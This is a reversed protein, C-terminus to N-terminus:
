RVQLLGRELIKQTFTKTDVAAVAADVKFESCVAKVVDGFTKGEAYAQWIFTGVENLGFYAGTRVNLLAAEGDIVSINIDPASTFGSTEKIETKM